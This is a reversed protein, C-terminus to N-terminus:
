RTKAARKIPIADIRLFRAANNYFIDRRQERTLFAASDIGNIALGIAEPWVMQDSGFMLRKGLGARELARLYAHFEERPIIWDIVALDAYVQPYVSMIAVTEQLYPWGAHMLYLRLKPHRVLVEELVAPNGLTTRFDPCCPDYTIGPFSLGTHVGVPLDLEEALALIPEYDADALSRGAYQAGIEGLARLRGSRYQARVWTTDLTPGDFGAGPIVRDPAADLWNGVTEVPGTGNSVVAQVINYQRFLELTMRQYEEANRVGLPQGTVPNPARKAFRPDDDSYCHVDMDIIPGGAATTGQPFAARTLLLGCALVLMFTLRM